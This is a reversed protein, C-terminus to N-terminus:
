NQKAEEMANREQEAYWRDYENMGATLEPPGGLVSPCDRINVRIREIATARYRSEGEKTWETVVPQEFWPECVLPM